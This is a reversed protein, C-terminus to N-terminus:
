LPIEACAASNVIMRVPLYPSFSIGHLSFVQVMFAPGQLGIVSKKPLKGDKRKFLESKGKVYKLRRRACDCVTCIFLTGEVVSGSM